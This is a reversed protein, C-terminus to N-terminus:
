GLQRWATPFQAEIHGHWYSYDSGHDAGTKLRLPGLRGCHQRLPGDVGDTPKQRRAAKCHPGNWMHTLARIGHLNVDSLRRALSRRRSGFWRRRAQRSRERGNLAQMDKSVAPRLPKKPNAPGSPPQPSIPRQADLSNFEQELGDDSSKRTYIACRFIQTAKPRDPKRM